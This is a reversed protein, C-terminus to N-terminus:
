TGPQEVTLGLDGAAAGMRADYTVVASLEEGLALAAALHIADLTRLGLPELRGAELLLPRDVVVMELAGLHALANQESGGARRVARLVEAVSLESTVLIGDGAASVRWRALARSEPEAVVLKVIASADLYWASM